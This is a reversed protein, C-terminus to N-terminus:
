LTNRMSSKTWTLGLPQTQYILTQKSPNCCLCTSVVTRSAFVMGTTLSILIFNTKSLIWFCALLGRVSKQSQRSLTGAPFCLQWWCILLCKLYSLSHTKSNRSGRPVQDAGQPRSFRTVWLTFCVANYFNFFLWLQSKAHLSIVFGCFQLKFDWGHIPCVAPSAKGVPVEYLQWEPNGLM